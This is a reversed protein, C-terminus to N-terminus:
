KIRFKPYVYPIYAVYLIYSWFFFPRKLMPYLFCHSLSVGASQLPHPTVNIPLFNLLLRLKHAPANDQFRILNRIGRKPLLKTAPMEGESRKVVIATDSTHKHTTLRVRQGALITGSTTSTSYHPIYFGKPIM